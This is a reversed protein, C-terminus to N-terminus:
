WLKKYNSFEKKFEIYEKSLTEGDKNFMWSKARRERGYGSARNNLCHKCNVKEWTCEQITDSWQISGDAWPCGFTFHIKMAM